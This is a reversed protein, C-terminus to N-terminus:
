NKIIKEVTEKQNAVIKVFYVGQTLQKLDIARQIENGYFVVTQLLRGNVDYITAKDISVESAIYLLDNVPNPYLKVKASLESDNVSLNDEEVTTTYDNTIIPFNFDFYIEADNSFMDGLNLTNLTKIKFVVYGDNNDDDFPLNINEFIFEVENANQIRTVIDHSADLPVLTNVDFKNTDIEDKVVVNIANATGTNEFRVMYHIYRGVMDPTITEGELCRKDNPDFSNVVIEKISTINNEDDFDGEIPYIVSQFGIEDGANVPYDPDTPTNFNMTIFIEGSELPQLNTYNWALSGFSLNDVNPISSVYDVVFDDYNFEVTGSITTTGKNKYIMKYDASFGPRVETLPIIYIELDQFDGSTSICFDQISPNSDVPFNIAVNPPSVSFYEPNELVPTITYTGAQLAVGYDGLNNSIISGEITGDTINFKLTPFDADNLDCGNDDIDLRVNGLIDYYDGGPVFSCYSNVVCNAYGYEEVKSFVDELEFDDVCIFALNPNLDFSYVSSFTSGNKIFLSMLQNGSCDFYFLNPIGSVDLTTLQNNYCYLSTLNSLVSEDLDTLQNDGCNLTDLNPLGSLDLSTFQNSLAMFTTLSTLGSLDISSLLNDPCFLLTLNTLGSVELTILENNACKLEILNSLGSADITTLQNNSCNLDILNTLGSADLETLLNIACNLEILNSLGIVDITTLQNSRCDLTNLNALGNVDLTTLDNNNCKLNQLNVFAEIGQLSSVNEFSVDLNLVAEAESVQIEGDNNIDVNGDMFGDGDSDVCFTNVLANKFNVGPIDVIQAQLFCCAFLAFLAAYFNRM